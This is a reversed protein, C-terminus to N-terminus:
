QATYGGDVLLHTGTVFSAGSGSLFLVAEAVEDPRGLRGIPHLSTMVDHPIRQGVRDMMETTIAGPGVINIRINKRAYDLAAAKSLGIVAFKSAVYLSMGRTGVEGMASSTNVISGGGSKLMADIEYKMSFFLGRVNADFTKDYNEETQDVLLGPDGELGANNFAADLRGFHEVTRDVMAKVEDENSIEVKVFLGESGVERILRLTEDAQAQRRGAIAVRAGERAFAVATARGIGSTGGTVLVVKNEFRLM